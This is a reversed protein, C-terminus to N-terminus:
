MLQEYVEHARSRVHRDPSDFFPIQSPVVSADGLYGPAKIISQQVEPSETQSLLVLCPRVAERAELKSLSEVVWVQM